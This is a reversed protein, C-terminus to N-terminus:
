VPLKFRYVYMKENEIDNIITSYYYPAIYGGIKFSKPTLVDGILTENQYIQLGDNPSPKGKQYSRFLIHNNDSIFLSTYYGKSEREEQLILSCNKWSTIPKYNTNMNKGMYGFAIVPIFEKNYKYITSDAEHAIYFNGQADIDYNISPFANYKGINKLYFPPYNVILKEVKGNKKNVQMLNKSNQYYKEPTDIFNFNDSESYINYYLYDKYNKINLNPYFTTYTESSNFKDGSNNNSLLFANEREYQKNFFYHDLTYGLVLLDGNQLKCINSIRKCIVEKPGRGQGLERYLIKGEPSFAFLWCFYKDIFHIENNICYSYGYFSCEYEELDFEIKEFTLSDIKITSQNTINPFDIKGEKCSFLLFLFFPLAFRNM